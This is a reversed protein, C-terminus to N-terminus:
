ALAGSSDILWLVATSNNTGDWSIVPTAGQPGLTKLSQSAPPSPSLIGGSMPFSMLSGNGPAVYVFNNWFLPTSFIAGAGVPVIQVRPFLDTRCTGDIGGM